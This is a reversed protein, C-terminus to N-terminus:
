RKKNYDKVGMVRKYYNTVLIKNVVVFVVVFFALWAYVILGRYRSTEFFYSIMQLGGLGIILSVVLIPLSRTLFLKGKMKDVKSLQYNKKKAM